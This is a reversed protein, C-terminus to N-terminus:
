GEPRPFSPLTKRGRPLSLRTAHWPRLNSTPDAADSCCVVREMAQDLRRRIAPDATLLLCADYRRELSDSTPTEQATGDSKTVVTLARRTATMTSWLRARSELCFAAVLPAFVPWALDWGPVNRDRGGPPLVLTVDGAFRAVMLGAERIEVWREPAWLSLWTLAQEHHAACEIFGVVFSSPRFQRHSGPMPVGQEGFAPGLRLLRESVSFEEFVSEEPHPYYGIRLRFWLYPGLGLLNSGERADTVHLSHVGLRRNSWLFCGPSAAFSRSTRTFGWRRRFAPRGLSRLFLNEIERFAEVHAAEQTAAPLVTPKSMVDGQGAIQNHSWPVDYSSIGDVRHLAQPYECSLRVLTGPPVRGALGPTRGSTLGSRPPADRPSCAFAHASTCSPSDTASRLTRRRRGDPSGM